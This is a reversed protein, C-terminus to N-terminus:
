YLTKRREADALVREAIEIRNMCSTYKEECLTTADNHNGSCYSTVQGIVFNVCGTYAALRDLYTDIDSAGGWLLYTSPRTCGWLDYLEQFGEGNLCEDRDHDADGNCREKESQCNHERSERDITEPNLGVGSNYYIGTSILVIILIILWGKKNM